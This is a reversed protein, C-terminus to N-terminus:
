RDAVRSTCRPCSCPPLAQAWPVDDAPEIERRERVTVTSGDPRVRYVRLTMGGAQRSERRPSGPRSPSSM